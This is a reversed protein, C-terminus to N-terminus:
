LNTPQRQSRYCRGDRTLWKLKLVAPCTEPWARSWTHDHRLLAEYKRAANASSRQLLTSRSLSNEERPFSPLSVPLSTACCAKDIYSFLLANRDRRPRSRTSRPWVRTISPSDGRTKVQCAIIDVNYDHASLRSVTRRPSSLSLYFWFEM